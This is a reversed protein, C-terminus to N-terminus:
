VIVFDIFGRDPNVGALRVRVRDGVDLGKEGRMVRGEMPPSAVRVYTGKNSAGTVLANFTGGVRSEVLMATAAKRVQREVKNAADEQRTCHAALGALEDVSYPTRHGALAAKVLRQTILDPYRRNPATSHAYDRVALGFHGPPEVGPPDVVYEGSGILKIVSTSLDVFRDPDAARRRALFANLVQSDASAPLTDGVAAALDRIRDWREPSRVVRRLSPFGRADLFRATVGNAAIMLNEILSKARNPLEPNVQQLTDGSFVHHVESSEFELAGNEHRVQNLTQAVRDQIRLQEDIGRVSAAVAPLPGRGELWEGVANYALKAYNHVRAGYVDSSRLVGDSAVVMEIVVALRDERDNLSTLDTSLREPLMPFIAAPTYVSTTNLAAHQDTASGRRVAADVDAIAVMVRTDGNALVDGVSLQDLDRSDDNDISCWLLKRLDRVPEETATPPGPLAAVESRVERSFDPDLGRERMAQEAIRQLRARHSGNPGSHQTQQHRTTM